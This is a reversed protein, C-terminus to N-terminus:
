ETEQAATEAQVRNFIDQGTDKALEVTYATVMEAFGPLKGPDEGWLDINSLVTDVLQKISSCEKWCNYFYAAAGDQLLLPGDKFKAYYNGAADKSSQMYLLYAAFRQAMRKPISNTQRYHAVILPICRLQMKQTYNLTISKWNHEIYPNRFRDLVNLTFVAAAEQSIMGSIIAPVIEELMLQVTFSSFEKDDMAEGVTTFGAMLALGCNFTHTGNLLRIKLERFLHIDDTVMCGNGTATFSLKEKVKGSVTEIAWLGYAESMIMLEDSYGLLTETNEQQIAPLKGPVIRDVLTNCFHNATDLWQVFADDLENEAALQLIIQKLVDGNNSILETPLIVMGANECGKFVTYRQHLFALLKGPFSVPPANGIRDGPQLVLGTETTNSIIIQMDPNAACTLVQQWQTAAQLVRSIAANIIYEEVLKGGEVGKLCHTYLGDQKTYADTDGGNTSKVVVIRGNFLGAKNARDIYYDPLGRLLVGTGFQLVKEPLQLLGPAPKEVLGSNIQPLTNGSLQM